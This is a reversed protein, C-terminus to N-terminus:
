QIHYISNTLYSAVYIGGDPANVMATPGQIGEAFLHTDATYHQDDIKFFRITFIKNASWFSVFLQGKYKAPLTDGEYLVIGSTAMHEGFTAMPPITDSDQAPMGFYNPFGYDGGETVFNVEEPVYIKNECDNSGDELRVCGSSGNDVVFFGGGPAPVLAFPNRIGTAYTQIDTGDPNMSFIGGGYPHTEIENDSTAGSGVYIRGDVIAIGNNQHNEEIEELTPFKDFIVTTKDAVYDGDSDELFLLKGIVNVYLGNEYWALGEPQDLDTAFEALLEAKGDSDQDKLAWIRGGVGAVYLVDDPGFTMASPARVFQEDFVTLTVAPDFVQIELAKTNVSLWNLVVASFGAIGVIAILGLILPSRGRLRTGIFYIVGAAAIAIVITLVSQLFITSTQTVDINIVPRRGKSYTLYAFVGISVVGAAAMLIGALRDAKRRIILFLGILIWVLGFVPVNLALIALPDFKFSPM